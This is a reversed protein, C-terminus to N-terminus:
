LLVLGILRRPSRVLRNAYPVDAYLHIPKPTPGGFAGMHTTLHKFSPLMRKIQLIRPHYGMLSGLPQELITYCGSCWAWIWLLACMSVMQNASTVSASRPPVGLPVTDYRKSTSRNVFTWSSCVTALHQGGRRKLRRMLQVSHLMGKKHIYDHHVSDYTIDVAVSHLGLKQMAKHINAVGAFWDIHDVHRPLHTPM